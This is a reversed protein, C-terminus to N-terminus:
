KFVKICRTSFSTSVNVLGENEELEQLFEVLEKQSKFAKYVTQNRSWVLFYKFGFWDGSAPMCESLYMNNNLKESLKEIRKRM